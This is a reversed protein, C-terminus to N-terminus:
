ELQKQSMANDTLYESRKTRIMSSLVRCQITTTIKKQISKNQLHLINKHIYAFIIKHFKCIFTRNVSLSM